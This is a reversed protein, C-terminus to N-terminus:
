VKTDLMSEGEPVLQQILESAPNEANDTFSLGLVETASIINKLEDQHTSVFQKKEESECAFRIYLGEDSQLLNIEIDGLPELSLHLSFPEPVKDSESEKAKKEQEVLLYGHDLFPLPLPYILLNDSQLKLRALQYLELTGLLRNTKEAVEEANKIVAAIELLAAKLTETGQKGKGEALLAELSLGLRDVLQKLVTGGKVGEISSQQLTNFSKLSEQTPSSLTDLLVPSSTTLAQFLTGIDLNKGLLTITQGFAVQPQESIIKLEVLPTTAMVQLKIKAGASLDVTDSQALIKQGHINLFFRNKGASDLVTATFIQGPRAQQQFQQRADHDATSSGVSKIPSLPKITNM